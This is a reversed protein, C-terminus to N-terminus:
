TFQTAPGPFCFTVKGKARDNLDGKLRAKKLGQTAEWYRSDTPTDKTVGEMEVDALHVFTPDEHRPKSDAQSQNISFRAYKEKLQQKTKLPLALETNPAQRTAPMWDFPGFGLAYATIGDVLPLRVRVLTFPAGASDEFSLLAGQFHDKIARILGGLQDNTRIEPFLCSAVQLTASQHCQAIFASMAQVVDRASGRLATRAWYEHYFDGVATKGVAKALKAAFVCGQQSTQHWKLQEDLANQDEHKQTM